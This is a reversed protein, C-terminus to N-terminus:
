TARAAGGAQGGELDRLRAEVRVVLMRIDEEFFQLRSRGPLHLDVQWGGFFPSVIFRAGRGELQARGNEISQVSLGLQAAMAGAIEELTVRGGEGERPNVM